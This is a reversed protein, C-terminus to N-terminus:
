DIYLGGIENWARYCFVQPRKESETRMRLSSLLDQHLVKSEEQM